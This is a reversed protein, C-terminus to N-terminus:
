ARARVMTAVTALLRHADIPKAVHVEFGSALAQEIDEERARATLAIAHLHRTTDTELARMSRMLSYGDEDPMSIDAILIDPHIKGLVARTERASATTTVTAGAQELMSRVVDRADGDDDVVLIHTGQLASQDSDFAELPEAPMVLTPLDAQQPLRVTFTAGRGPGGSTARVTGGHLEVLHRVIALGLGLGGHTRTLSSDAQRFREFVHPVFEPAIGIGTDAVQIETQAEDERLTVTVRGGPPTFRVANSLLNWVIQQLRHGDGAILRTPPELRTVMEVGKAEAAPRVADLAGEIVKILSVATVNLAMQGNIIRSVDLLEDILRAQIRANRDIARIAREVRTGDYHQSTLISAWGLIANLPTRLEHSLTALFDDKL